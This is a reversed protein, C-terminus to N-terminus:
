TAGSVFVEVTKANTFCSLTTILGVSAIVIVALRLAISALANLIVIPVLLIVVILSAM